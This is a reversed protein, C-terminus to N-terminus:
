GLYIKIDGFVRKSTNKDWHNMTAEEADVSLRQLLVAREEETLFKATTPWDPILFISVVGCLVTFIGELIFIWRQSYYTLMISTSLPFYESTSVWGALGGIGNMHVIAYALLGSFAGAIISACFFM